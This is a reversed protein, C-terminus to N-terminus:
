RSGVFWIGTRVSAWPRSGLEGHGVVALTVGAPARQHQAATRKSWPLAAPVAAGQLSAQAPSFPALTPAFPTKPSEAM